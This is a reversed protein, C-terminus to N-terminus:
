GLKGNNWNRASRALNEQATVSFPVHALMVYSDERMLRLEYDGSALPESLVKEDFLVSGEVRAGTYVFALYGGYLDTDGARYIGIWDNKMGPANRFTVKIAEGPKFQSKELQLKPVAERALIHFPIRALENGKGNLLVAEYSGPRIGLSGFKISPRTSFLNPGRATLIADQIPHGDCPVIVVGWDGFDPIHFRVLFDGGETFIPSDVAIMAPARAPVVRFTSVVARHDSPYPSVAIDVSPNGSEGIIKSELTSTKGGTWIMDIREMPENSKVWPHPHGPTWTLGPKAVPDPYIERFSDRLGAEALAKTVPWELPYRLHLRRGTTEPIWDQHSPSNFDGAFFVPVGKAVRDSLVQIYPQLEPARVRRELALVEEPTGGDRVLDPGSPSSTLHVNAFAVMRGPAVLVRTYPVPTKLNCGTDPDFLPYRSIINRKEDVYSLGVANALTKLNGDPEQVGILDPHALRIAEVVQGFSVQEGGYWINFTMVRLELDEDDSFVPPCVLCLLM